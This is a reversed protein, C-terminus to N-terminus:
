FLSRELMITTLATYFTIIIIIVIIIYHVPDFIAQRRPLLILQLSFLMENLRNMKEEM